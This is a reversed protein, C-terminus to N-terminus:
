LRSFGIYRTIRGRANSALCLPIAPHSKARGAPERTYIYRTGKKYRGGSDVGRARSRSLSLFHLSLGRSHLQLGCVCRVSVDVCPPECRARRLCAQAYEFLFCLVTDGTDGEEFISHRRRRLYQTDSSVTYEFISHEFLCGPPLVDAMLWAALANSGNSPAPHSRRPPRYTRERPM